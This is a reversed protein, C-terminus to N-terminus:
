SEASSLRDLQTSSEELMDLLCEDLSCVIEDTRVRSLMRLVCWKTLAQAAEMGLEFEQESLETDGNRALQIAADYYHLPTLGDEDLALLPLIFRFHHLMRTHPKSAPHNPIIIHAQADVAYM